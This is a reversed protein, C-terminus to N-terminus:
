YGRATGERRPDASGAYGTDTKRIVSLGSTLEILSVQHGRAELRPVLPALNRDKELETPGNRSGYHPLHVAQQPDLHWDLLAVLTQAVYNIIASGGPSGVALTFRGHPDLVLMPAMASRPRKRAAIRNAVPKGQVTPVFSFDTLQNNLLYGNVMIRSGFVDEISTTMTLVQGQEDVITLHSTSSFELSQDDGLGASRGHDPEGPPAVGLSQHLSIRQSRTALYSHDLLGAVPVAVFDSDALYRARDAYALRGAEAFLHVSDVALPQSESLAFRELVGLIQLVAIGGASPPPMGYVAHRRYTSRVPARQKAAYAAFDAATLDGPRTPHNSVAQVM